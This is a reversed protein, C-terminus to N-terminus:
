LLLLEQAVGPAVGQLTVEDPAGHRYLLKLGPHGFALASGLFRQGNEVDEAKPLALGASHRDPGGAGVFGLEASALRPNHSVRRICFLHTCYSCLCLLQNCGTGPGKGRPPVCQTVLKHQGHVSFEM